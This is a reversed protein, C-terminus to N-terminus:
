FTKSPNKFQVKIGKREQLSGSGAASEQEIASLLPVVDAKLRELSNKASELNASPVASLIKAEYRAILSKVNNVDQKAYIIRRTKLNMKATEVSSQIERIEKNSIPLGYRLLSEADSNVRTGASTPANLRADALVRSNDIPSLLALSTGICISGAFKVMKGITSPFLFSSVTSGSKFSNEENCASPKTSQLIVLPRSTFRFYKETIVSFSKVSPSILSITLLCFLTVKM